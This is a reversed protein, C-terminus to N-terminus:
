KEHLAAVKDLKRVTGIVRGGRELLTTLAHAFGSSVGTISWTRITM